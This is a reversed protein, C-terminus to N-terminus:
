AFCFAAMWIEIDESIMGVHFGFGSKRVMLEQFIDTISTRLAQYDIM